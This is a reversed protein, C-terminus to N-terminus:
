QNLSAVMSSEAFPLSKVIAVPATPTLPTGREAVYLHTEPEWCSQHIYGLAITGLRPSICGSLIMGANSKGPHVLNQGFPPPTGGGPFQLGMLRRAVFGKALTRVIVEQGLYCGKHFDIAETLGAEMPLREADMDLGYQPEGAEIRLITEETAELLPINHDRFQFDLKELVPYPAVVFYGPIGLEQTRIVRLPHEKNGRQYIRVHGHLPLQDIHAPLEPELRRLWAAADPGQLALQGRINQLPIIQADDMVLHKELTNQVGPGAAAEMQLLVDTDNGIGVYVTMNGMMQGQANLLVAACGQGPQLVNINNTVMGHLFRKADPGQVFFRARHHLIRYFTSHNRM